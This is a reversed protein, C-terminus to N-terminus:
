NSSQGSFSRRIAGIRGETSNAGPIADPCDRPDVERIQGTVNDFLLHRCIKTGAEPIIISGTYHPADDDATGAAVAPKAAPVTTARRVLEATSLAGIGFLFLAFLVPATVGERSSRSTFRVSGERCNKRIPM